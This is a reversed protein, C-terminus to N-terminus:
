LSGVPLRKPYPWQIPGARWGAPLKWHLETPLGAEGPNIWYTHWGPRIREELAVTVKGGPAMEGNEAILRAEVKPASDTQGAAATAGCLMLTLALLLRAMGAAIARCVTDPWCSPLVRTLTVPRTLTRSPDPDPLAHSAACPRSTRSRHLGPFRRPM